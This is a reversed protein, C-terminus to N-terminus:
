DDFVLSRDKKASRRKYFGRGAFFHRGLFESSGIDVAPDGSDSIMERLVVRVRQSEHAVNKSGYRGPPSGVTADRFGFFRVIVRLVNVSYNRAIRSLAIVDALHNRAYHVCAPEVFEFREVGLRDNATEGSNPSIRDANDGIIANQKRFARELRGVK